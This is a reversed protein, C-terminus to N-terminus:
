RFKELLGELNELSHYEIVIKGRGNNQHQLLVRSGLRETLQKQLRVIDPDITPKKSQSSSQLLSTQLQKILLETARVSLQQKVVQEAAHIQQEGTLALLM